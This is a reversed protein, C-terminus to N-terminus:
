QSSHHGTGNWHM